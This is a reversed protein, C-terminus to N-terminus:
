TRVLAGAGIEYREFADIYSKESANYVRAGLHRAYEELEVYGQFTLSLSYLIQHMKFTKQKYGDIWMPTLVPETEDDFHPNKWFLRNEDDIHIEEHWNHDAGVLYLTRYGMNLGLFVGVSLTNYLLPMARSREYLYLALSRHCSVGSTDFYVIQINPNQQPLDKFYSWGRAAVNMLLTMKWTVQERMIDVSKKVMRDITADQAKRWYAPDTLVYYEPTLRTFYETQAFENVCATHKGEFFGFHRELTSRLSPGTGVIVLEKDTPARLLAIEPRKALARVVGPTAEIFRFVKKIAAAGIM